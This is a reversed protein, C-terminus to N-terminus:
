LKLLTIGSTDITQSMEGIKYRYEKYMCVFSQGDPIQGKPLVFKTSASTVRDSKQQSLPREDNETIHVKTGQQQGDITVSFAPSRISRYSQLYSYKLPSKSHEKLAVVLILLLLNVKVILFWAVVLIVLSVVVMNEDVVITKAIVMLVHLELILREM